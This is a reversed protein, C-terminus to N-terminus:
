RVPPTPKAIPDGTHRATGELYNVFAEPQEAPAMEFRTNVAQADLVTYTLRFRPGPGPESTFAIGRGQAPGAAAYHIVHGENDLYLARLAGGEPYIVMLDTHTQAPRGDRPPFSTSSRRTMAKGDLQRDFTFTGAGAGPHGSNAGTWTGLLFRMPEFPDPRPAPAQASLATVTLALLLRRM